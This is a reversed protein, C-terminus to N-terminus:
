NGTTEPRDDKGEPTTLSIPNGDDDRFGHKYVELEIYNCFGLGCFKWDDKVQQPVDIKVGGEYLEVEHVSLNQAARYKAILLIIDEVNVRVM